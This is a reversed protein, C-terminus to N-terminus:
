QCGLHEALGKCPSGALEWSCVLGHKCAVIEKSVQLADPQGQSVWPLHTAFEPECWTQHFHVAGNLIVLIPNRLAVHPSFFTKLRQRETMHNVGNCVTGAILGKMLMCTAKSTWFSSKVGVFTGKCQAHLTNGGFTTRLQGVCKAFNFKTIGELCPSIWPPPTLGIQCRERETAIVSELRPSRPLGILTMKQVNRRRRSSCTGLTNGDDLNCFLDEASKMDLTHAGQVTVCVRLIESLASSGQLM